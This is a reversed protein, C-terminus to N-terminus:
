QQFTSEVQALFRQATPFSGERLYYFFIDVLDSRASLRKELISM